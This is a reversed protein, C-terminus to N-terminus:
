KHILQEIGCTDGAIEELSNFTKIVNLQNVSNFKSSTLYGYISFLRINFKSLKDSEKYEYGYINRNRCLAVQGTFMNFTLIRMGESTYDGISLIHKSICNRVTRRSSPPIIM